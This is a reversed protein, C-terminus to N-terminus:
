CTLNALIVFNPRSCLSLGKNVCFTVICILSALYPGVSGNGQRLLHTSGWKCSSSWSPQVPPESRPAPPPLQHGLESSCQCSPPLDRARAPGKMFEKIHATKDNELITCIHLRRVSPPFLIIDCTLASCCNTIFSLYTQRITFYLQTTFMSALMIFGHRAKDDGREINRWQVAKQNSEAWSSPDKGSTPRIEDSCALLSGRDGEYLTQSPLGM